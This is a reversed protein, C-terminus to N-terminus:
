LASVVGSDRRPRCDPKPSLNGDGLSAIFSRHRIVSWHCPAIYERAVSKFITSVLAVQTVNRPPKAAQPPAPPAPPTMGPVPLEDLLLEDPLLEDPLLEDLPPEDLLEDLLLEDLPPEDLLEDLLLLPPEEEPLLELLEPPVVPLVIDM